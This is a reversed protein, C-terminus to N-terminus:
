TNSTPICFSAAPFSNPQNNVFNLMCKVVCLVQSGAGVYKGSFCFCMDVFFVCAHLNMTARSMLLGLSSVVWIDVLLCQFFCWGTDVCHFVGPCCLPVDVLVSLLM